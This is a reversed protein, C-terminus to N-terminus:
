PAAAGRKDWYRRRDRARCADLNKSRYRVQADRQCQRCVRRGESGIYLNGGEYPHGKPCHTKGVNCAAPSTGRHTNVLGTVVEMHDPNVCARNRCLHDIQLGEPIDGNRMRWAVRHALRNTGSLWFQAYGSGKILSGTWQWCPGLDPRCAPVPGAKDVKSLFREEDTKRKTM